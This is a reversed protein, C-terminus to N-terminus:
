PRESGNGNPSAKREAKIRGAAKGLRTAEDAATRAQEQDRLANAKTDLSKLRKKAARQDTAKASRATAQRSAALRRRETTVADQQREQRKRAARERQARARQAAQKREHEAQEHQQELRTDAQESRREAALRLRLAKEREQAAEQQRQADERLAPDGLVTGFLARLAADARDVVLEAVPRAGTGNGPLLGIASDLPLRVLKLTSDVAARPLTRVNV